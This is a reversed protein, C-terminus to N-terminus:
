FVFSLTPGHEEIKLTSKPFSKKNHGGCIVIFEFLIYFHLAYNGVVNKKVLSIIWYNVWIFPIIIQRRGINLQFYPSIFGKQFSISYDSIFSKFIILFYYFFHVSPIM